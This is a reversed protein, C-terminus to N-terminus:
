KPLWPSKGIQSDAPVQQPKYLRGTMVAVLLIAAVLPGAFLSLVLWIVSRMGCHAAIVGVGICGSFWIFALILLCSQQDLQTMIRKRCIAVAHHSSPPVISLRAFVAATM